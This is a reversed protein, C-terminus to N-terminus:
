GDIVCEPSSNIATRGDGQGICARRRLGDKLLTM